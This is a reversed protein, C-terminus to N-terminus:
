ARRVAVGEEPHLVTTWNFTVIEIGDRQVSRGGELSFITPVTRVSRVRVWPDRKNYHGSDYICDDPQVNKAAITTM